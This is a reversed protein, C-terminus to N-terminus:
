VGITAPNQRTRFTTGSSGTVILLQPVQGNLMEIQEVRFIESDGFEYFVEQDNAGM